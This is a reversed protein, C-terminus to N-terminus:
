AAPQQNNARKKSAKKPPEPTPEPKKAAAEKAAKADAIQQQRVTLKKPAEPKPDEPVDDDKDEDSKADPTSSTDMADGKMLEEDIAKLMDDIPAIEKSPDAGLVFCLMDEAAAWYGQTREDANPHLKHKRVAALLKKLSRKDLVSPREGAARAIARKAAHSQGTRQAGGGSGDGGDGGGDGGGASDGAKKGNGRPQLKLVAELAKEQVEANGSRAIDFGTVAPILGKDVAEKVAKIATKEYQLWVNLTPLKIGFDVAVEEPAIGGAISRIAKAIRTSTSDDHRVNGANMHRLMQKADLQVVKCLVTLESGEAKSALRGGRIRERGDIVFPVGKPDNAYSTPDLYAVEIPTLIGHTRINSVWEPTMKVKKLRIDYLPHSKDTVTDLPGREAEPLSDKGGFIAVETVSLRVVEKNEKAM